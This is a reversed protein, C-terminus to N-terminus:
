ADSGLATYLWSGKNVAPLEPGRRQLGTEVREFAYDLMPGGSFSAILVGDGVEGGLELIKPGRGAIYVPVRYEPTWSLGADTFSVVKGQYDLREGAILRRILETAERMATAPRSREIGMAAFGSVGAGMGLVARGQSAEALSAIASATLAPHRVYPDTVSTGLRIRNTQEAMMALMVWPDRYFREDSVWLQHVPSDDLYQARRRWESMPETGGVYGVGFELNTSM